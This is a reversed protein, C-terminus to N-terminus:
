KEVIELSVGFVQHIADHLLTLYRPNRAARFNHEGGLKTVDDFNIFLKQNEISVLRADFFALWAIRDQALLLDLVQNWGAKLTELTPDGASNMSNLILYNEDQGLWNGLSFQSLSTSM